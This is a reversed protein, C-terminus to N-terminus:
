NIQCRSLIKRNKEDRFDIELKENIPERKKESLFVEEQNLM